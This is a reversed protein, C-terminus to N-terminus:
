KKMASMLAKIENECQAILNAYLSASISRLDIQFKFHSMLTATLKEYVSRASKHEDIGDENGRRLEDNARKLRETVVADVAQVSLPQANIGLESLLGKVEGVAGCACLMKCISLLLVTTKLKARDGAEALALRTDKPSAINNFEYQLEGIAKSREDVPCRLLRTDGDLIRIYEDMTLESLKKM